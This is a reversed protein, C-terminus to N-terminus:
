NPETFYIQLKLRKNENATNNGILVTGEPSIVSSAPIEFIGPAQSTRLDQFGPQVVNQSVVLALPVNTSDRNILNSVHNTIRLKYFDGNEDTGRDLRGLHVNVANLPEESSTLDQNFDVLVTSNNADYILLREPETEGGEVQDQDVYIILNAENILLERERLLELEDAVGNNDADEGFLEIISFVGSGGRVYLKEEGNNFDPNELDSAVQPALENDFVNVNVGNFNLEFEREERNGDDDLEDITYYITINADELDFLFLNTDDLDSEINFYLGRLYNAFNNNNLLVEEGEQDFIKEKFYETPLLVRLGPALLEEEGEVGANFIIGEESPQFDEILAIEEQLFSEFLDGQNSYYKQPEEFNTNPDLQRLLYGSEFLRINIKDNGFVSDLAYNVGDATQTGESFFPIYLAVSDIIPDSGFSPGEDELTLQSLLKVTSKGYVPDNYTGLQYVPLNNTQVPAMKRSYAVVSSVIDPEADLDPLGIVDAGISSFDEECSSLALIMAFVVAIKPLIYKSNM